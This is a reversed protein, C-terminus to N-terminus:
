QKEAIVDFASSGLEAVRLKRRGPDIVLAYPAASVSQTRIVKNAQGDIVSISHSLSDAAYVRNHESDVAVAEPRNGVAIEAVVRRTAGSIAFIRNRAYDAAYITNTRTNVAIACPMGGTRIFSATISGPALVAIAGDGIKAVYLVGTASDLVVGWAHLGVSTRKITHTSEDLIALDGMEYSLLYVAHTKENIAILDPSGAKISSVANTAADVVMLQDSYTRSVYIKGLVSDAAISYPHAGIALTALVTDARGDLVSVTGDGANVVYARGNTTDVAISTPNRGVKVTQDQGTRDNSIHVTGAASDVIYGKGTAPNFAAGASNVLGTRPSLAHAVSPAVLALALCVISLARFWTATEASVSSKILYKMKSLSTDTMM